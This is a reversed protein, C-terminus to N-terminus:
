REAPREGADDGPEADGATAPEDPADDVTAGDRDLAAGAVEPEFMGNMSVETM